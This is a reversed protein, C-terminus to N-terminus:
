DHKRGVIPPWGFRQRKQLKYSLVTYTHEEDVWHVFWTSPGDAVVDCHSFAARYWKGPTLGILGGNWWDGDKDRRFRPTPITSGAAKENTALVQNHETM